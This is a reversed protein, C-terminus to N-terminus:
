RPCCEFLHQALPLEPEGLVRWAYPALPPLEAAQM